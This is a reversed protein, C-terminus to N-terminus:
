YGIIENVCDDCHTTRRTEPFFECGCEKCEAPHDRFADPCGHEHCLTGNVTAPRCGDCGCHTLTISDGNRYTTRM